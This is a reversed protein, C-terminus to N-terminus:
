TKEKQIFHTYKISYFFSHASANKWIGFTAVKTQQENIINTRIIPILDSNNDIEDSSISYYYCTETVNDLAFYSKERHNEVSGVSVSCIRSHEKPKHTTGMIPKTNNFWLINMLVNAISENVNKYYESLSGEGVVDGMTKNDFLWLSHIMGSRAYEQLVNYVVRHQKRRIDTLFYREPHIYIVKVERDKIQELIALTAGSVTSAGTLILWVDQEKGLRLKNGLKPVNEEYEEHSSCVPLGKGGDLVTTKIGKAKSLIKCINEGCNGLGIVHM